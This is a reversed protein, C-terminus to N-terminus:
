LTQGNHNKGTQLRKYTETFLELFYLVKHNVLSSLPPSKVFIAKSTSKKSHFRRNRMSVFVCVYACVCARVCARVCVRVCARVCACVSAHEFVCMCVRMYVRVYICVFAYVRVCM